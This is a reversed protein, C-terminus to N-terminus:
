EAFSEQFFTLMRQSYENPHAHLGGVHPADEIIWVRANNNMFTAYKQNVRREFDNLGGALMVIPPNNLDALVDKFVPPAFQGLRIEVAKLIMNNIVNAFSEGANEAQLFDSMQQAQVGDLWMAGFKEPHLHAANLTVHGGLSLGVVGIRGPDVEPRGALYDAVAVLDPGDFWSLSTLEGTSECLARQDYM